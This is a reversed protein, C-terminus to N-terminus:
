DNPLELLLYMRKVIMITVLFMSMTLFIIIPTIIFRNLFSLAYEVAIIQSLSLLVAIVASLLTFCINSNIQNLLKGRANLDVSSNEGKQKKENNNSKIQDYVLVLVSMLLASFIAGFTIVGNRFDKSMQIDYIAFAVAIALPVMVFTLFDFISKRGTRDDVLTCLHNKVISSVNIKTSM